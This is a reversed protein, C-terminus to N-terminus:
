QMKELLAAAAEKTLRGMVTFVAQSAAERMREFWAQRAPEDMASLDAINEAGDIRAGAECATTKATLSLEALPTGGREFRAQAALRRSYDGRTGSAADTWSLLLADEGRVATMSGSVEEKAGNKATTYAIELAISVPAGGLTGEGYLSTLRGDEALTWEAHFDGCALTADMQRLLVNGQADEDVCFILAGDTGFAAGVRAPLSTIKERLANMQAQAADGSEGANLLAAPQWLTENETIEACLASFLAAAEQQTVVTIRATMDALRERSETLATARWSEGISAFQTQPADIRVTEGWFLNSQELWDGGLRMGTWDLVSAGQLQWDVSWLRGVGDPYECLLTLKSKELVSRLIGDTEPLVAKEISVTTKLQLGSELAERERTLALGEAQGQRSGWMALALLILLVAAYRWSKKGRM